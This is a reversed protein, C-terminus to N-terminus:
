QGIEIPGDFLIRGIGQGVDPPARGPGFQPTVALREVVRQGLHEGRQLAELAHRTRDRAIRGGEQGVGAGGRREPLDDPVDIHLTTAVM